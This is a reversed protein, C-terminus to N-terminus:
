DRSPLHLHFTRVIVGPAVVVNRVQGTVGAYRGTGGIIAATFRIAGMPISAQAEIQGAALVFGAHCVQVKGTVTTCSIDATGIRDGGSRVAFELATVDGPGGNRADNVASSTLVTRVRLVQREHHRSASGSSSAAAAGTATVVGLGVIVCAALIRFRNSIAPM